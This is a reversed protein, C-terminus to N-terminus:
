GSKSQSQTKSRLPIIITLLAGTAYALPELESKKWEILQSNEPETIVSFDSYLSKRGTRLRLFGGTQRLFSLVRPLGLGYGADSKSTNGKVFCARIASLEEAPTIESSSQKLWSPAFGVGSDFVSFEIFRIQKKAVEPELTSFYNQLPAFENTGRQLDSPLVSCFRVQLGRMARKLSEGNIGKRGHQDTNSFIEFLMAGFATVSEHTWEALLKEPALKRVLQRALYQFQGRDRLQYRKDSSLSYLIAPYSLGIHDACLTFLSTTKTIDFVQQSQLVSLKNLAEYRVMETIDSSTRDIITNASTCAALGLLSDSIRTSDSQMSDDAFTRIVTTTQMRAWTCYAQVFAAEGGGYSHSTHIPIKLESNAGSSSIKQLLTECADLNLQSPVSIITM